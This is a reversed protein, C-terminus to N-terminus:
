KEEAIRRKADALKRGVVGCNADAKLAKEYQKVANVFNGQSFEFDGLKAAASCDEKCGALALGAALLAVAPLGGRMRKLSLAQIVGGARVTRVTRSGPNRFYGNEM